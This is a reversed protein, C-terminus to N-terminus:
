CPLNLWLYAILLLAIYSSAMGVYRTSSPLSQLKSLVSEENQKYYNLLRHWLLFTTGVFCILYETKDWTYVCISFLSLVIMILAVIMFAMLATIQIIPPVHKQVFLVKTYILHLSYYM